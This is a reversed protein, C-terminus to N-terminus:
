LRDIFLAVWLICLENSVEILTLFAWLGFAKTDYNMATNRYFFLYCCSTDCAPRGAFLITQLCLFSVDHRPQMQQIQWILYKPTKLPKTQPTSNCFM